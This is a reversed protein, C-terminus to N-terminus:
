LCYCPSCPKGPCCMRWCTASCKYEPCAAAEARSEPVLRNLARDALRNVLKM